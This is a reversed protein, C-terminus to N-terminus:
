FTIGNEGYSIYIFKKTRIPGFGATSVAYMLTEPKKTFAGENRSPWPKDRENQPNHIVRNM